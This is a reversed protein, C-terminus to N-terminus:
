FLRRQRSHCIDTLVIPAASHVSDLWRPIPEADELGSLREIMKDEVGDAYSWFLPRWIRTNTDIDMIGTWNGGYFTCVTKLTTSIIENPADTEHLTSELRSEVREREVCYRLYEDDYM